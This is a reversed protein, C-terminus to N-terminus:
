EGRGGFDIVVSDCVLPPSSVITKHLASPTLKAPAVDSPFVGAECLLEACLKSCCTYVRLDAPPIRGFRSSLMTRTSFAQREATLTQALLLAKAHGDPTCPVVVTDYSAPDFQRTKLHVVGGMYVACSQGDAFELECHCYPPDSLAVLKNLLGDKDLVPNYFHVRLTQM